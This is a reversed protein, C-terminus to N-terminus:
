WQSHLTTAIMAISTLSSILKSSPELEV